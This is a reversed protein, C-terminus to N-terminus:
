DPSRHQTPAISGTASGTTRAMSSCWSRRSSRVLRRLASVWKDAPPSVLDRPKEQHKAIIGATTPTERLDTLAAEFSDDPVDALKQWKSSQDYSVGVDSLRTDTSAKQPRGKLKEMDRLLQGAKREARLRIECAQQEAETNKAQRAYM